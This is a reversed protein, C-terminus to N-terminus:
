RVRGPFSVELVVCGTETRFPGHWQGPPRAVYDGATLWRGVAEDYLRGSLIMVQEPYTHSKGGFETTDAGPLFRTLRTYTGLAPDEHLTLEEARGELGSVPHWRDASEPALPNWYGDEPERDHTVEAETNM